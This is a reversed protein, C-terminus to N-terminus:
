HRILIRTDLLWSAQILTSSDVRKAPHVDPTWVVYVGFTTPIGLLKKPAELLGGPHRPLRM